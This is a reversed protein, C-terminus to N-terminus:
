KVLDLLKELKYGSAQANALLKSIENYCVLISNGIDNTYAGQDAPATIEVVAVIYLWWLFDEFAEKNFWLIDQYRNVGLYSLAESDSLLASLLQYVGSGDKNKDASITKWWSHHSTLLKVLTEARWSSREDLGLDNLTSAFIKNLVWEDMWSRSIEEYNEASIIEGMRATFLWGLLVCWAYTDGNKWPSTKLFGAHLYRIAAQYKKGRLQRNFEQIHGLSLIAILNAQNEDVLHSYDGASRTIQQVENVLLSVKGHAEQLLQQYAAPSLTEGDTLSPVLNRNTIVWRFFGSNVLESYAQHVPQLIIEKLADDISPVGRGDLYAALNAYQHWENDKVERFSTFVQCKYAEL